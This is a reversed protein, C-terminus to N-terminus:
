ITSVMFYGIDGQVKGQLNIYILLLLAQLDFDRKLLKGGGTIFSGWNRTKCERFEKEAESSIRSVNHM